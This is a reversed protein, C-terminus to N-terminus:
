PAEKGPRDAPSRAPRPLGGEGRGPETRTPPNPRDSATRSPDPAPRTLRQFLAPILHCLKGRSPNGPSRTADPVTRHRNPSSRSDLPLTQREIKSRAALTRWLDELAASLAGPTTM